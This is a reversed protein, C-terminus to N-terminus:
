IMDTDLLSQQTSCRLSNNILVSVRDEASIANKISDRHWTVVPKPEGAAQCDMVLTEGQEVLVSEPPEIEFTPPVVDWLARRHKVNVLM